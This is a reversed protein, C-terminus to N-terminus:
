VRTMIDLLVHTYLTLIAIDYEVFVIIRIYWIWNTCYYYRQTINLLSQLICCSLDLTAMRSVPFMSYALRHFAFCFCLVNHQVDNCAFLCLYRLYSKFGWLLNFLIDLLNFYILCSCEFYTLSTIFCFLTFLVQARM